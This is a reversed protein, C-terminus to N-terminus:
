SFEIAFGTICATAFAVFIFALLLLWYFMIKMMFMESLSAGAGAIALSMIAGMAMGKAALSTAIPVMTSARVYIFVGIFAASPILLM